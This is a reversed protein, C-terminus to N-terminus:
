KVFESGRFRIIEGGLFECTLADNPVRSILVRWVAESETSSESSVSWFDTSKLLAGDELGSLCLALGGLSRVASRAALFPKPVLALVLAASWVTVESLRFIGIRSFFSFELFVRGGSHTLGFLLDGSSELIRGASEEFILEGVVGSLDGFGDLSDIAVNFRRDFGFCLGALVGFLLGCTEFM